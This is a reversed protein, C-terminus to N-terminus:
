VDSSGKRRFGLRGSRSTRLPMTPGDRAEAQSHCRSGPTNLTIITNDSKVNIIPIYPTNPFIVYARVTARYSWSKGQIGVELGHLGQSGQEFPGQM